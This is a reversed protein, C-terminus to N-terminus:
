PKNYKIIKNYKNLFLDSNTKLIKQLSKLKILKIQKIPKIKLTIQIMGLHNIQKIVQNKRIILLIIIKQNKM